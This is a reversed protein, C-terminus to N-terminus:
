WAGVHRATEEQTRHLRDHNVEDHTTPMPNEDVGTRSSAGVASPPHPRINISRPGGQTTLRADLCRRRQLASGRRVEADEWSLIAVHTSRRDAVTGIRAVSGHSEWTTRQLARSAVGLRGLFRVKAHSVGRIPNEKSSNMGPGRAEFGSTGASAVTFGNAVLADRVVRLAEDGSGNIRKTGRYPEQGLM